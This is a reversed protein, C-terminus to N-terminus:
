FNTSGMKLQKVYGQLDHVHELVHWLTIADFSNAPLNFLEDVDLIKLGYMKEAVTRAGSDPELGTVVWGSHIMKNVFAGTGCGVDLHDGKQLGTVKVILNLKGTLTRKKILQYIRNIFGKHTDSHSIYDQSQYFGSISQLDPIDQTFRLSCNHCHCISFDKKSVTYDKAEFISSIKEAHCVPCRNLHITNYMFFHFHEFILM